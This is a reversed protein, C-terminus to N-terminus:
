RRSILAEQVILLNDEPANEGNLTIVPCSLQRQWADHMASSRMTAPGNDYCAAWALFELHNQHMDGGPRIRDGFHAYERARLRDLRVSQPTILRVALTFRPILEDGWGCLSGSIVAGGHSDLDANMLALREPIPRKDTFKPDTPLWFYDDTDMHLLQLRGAICRGLTTTGSGSAGFIHIVPQM